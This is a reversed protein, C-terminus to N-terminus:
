KQYVGIIKFWIALLHTVVKNAHNIPMDGTWPQNSVRAPM